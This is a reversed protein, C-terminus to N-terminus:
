GNVSWPANRDVSDWFGCHHAAALTRTSTMASQGGAQWSMVPHGATSFRSWLPTGTANPNGSRAFGTWEALVQSQLAAQNPDLSAPVDHVLRNIASHYAGLPQTEGPSPSDTDDDEYAYVPIHKALQADSTLAPCVSFGDAMISRYAIFSSPTPFRDIPYLKMVKPAFSGFQQRVLTRYQAPTNAVVTRPGNTYVGGNFEDEGVGIMLKVKNVHGTRFAEAASTPLTTGNAIPGITGGAFPSEYTGAHKALTAAPVKRLCEAVDSAHECGVKAAFAAGAKQAQAENAVKTKCDAPSWITNVNFNYFGSVSIGERFLGKAAPSAVQDCVSAGGASEGFITVNGPNGGFGAINAKVWRLAAQQDQLGYDGSHAGLAKDALFGFIGVRYGVYVYIAPGSHIFNTGDDDRFEGLFGGGHLEVMVPLKHGAKIAAPEQVELFLCDERTGKTLGGRGRRRPPDRSLHDDV